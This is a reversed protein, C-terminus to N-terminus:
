RKDYKQRTEGQSKLRQNKRDNLVILTVIGIALALITEESDVMFARIPAGIFLDNCASVFSYGAFCSGIMSLLALVFQQLHWHMNKLEDM